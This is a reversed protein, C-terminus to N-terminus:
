FRQCGGGIRYREKKDKPLKDFKKIVSWFQRGAKKRPDGEKTIPWPGSWASVEFLWNEFKYTRPGCVWGHVTDNEM